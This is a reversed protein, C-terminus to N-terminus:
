SNLKVIEVRVHAGYAPHHADFNEKKTFNGPFRFILIREHFNAHIKMKCKFVLM